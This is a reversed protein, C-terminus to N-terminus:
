QGYTHISSKVSWAEEHSSDITRNRLDVDVYDPPSAEEGREAQGGDM